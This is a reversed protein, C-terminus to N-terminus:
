NPISLKEPVFLPFSSSLVDHTPHPTTHDICITGCEHFRSFVMLAAIPTLSIGSPVDLSLVGKDVTPVFALYALAPSGSGSGGGGGGGSGHDLSASPALTATAARRTLTERWHRWCPWAADTGRPAPASSSPSSKGSGSRGGNGSREVSSKEM